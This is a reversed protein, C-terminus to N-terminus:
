EGEREEIKCEFVLHRIDPNEDELIHIEPFTFGQSFIANRIKNKIRTFDEEYPLFFHIQVEVIVSQPTDDAYADGYDDSFNFTFWRKEKGEYVGATYPYGFPQIAEIIKEFATM